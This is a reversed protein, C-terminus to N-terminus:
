GRSPEVRLAPPSARRLVRTELDAGTIIPIPVATGPASRFSSALQAGTMFVWRRAGVRPIPSSTMSALVLPGQGGLWDPALFVGITHLALRKADTDLPSIMWPFGDQVWDALSCQQDFLLERVEGGLETGDMYFDVLGGFLLVEFFEGAEGEIDTQRSHPAGSMLPPTNCDGHGLFTQLLHGIEHLYAHCLRFLSLQYLASNFNRGRAVYARQREVALTVWQPWHNTNTVWFLTISLSVTSNLKVAQSRTDFEEPSGRWSGRPHDSVIRASEFRDDDVLLPSTNLKQLFTNTLRVVDADPILTGRARLSARVFAQVSAVGRECNCADVAKNWSAAQLYYRSDSAPLQELRNGMRRVIAFNRTAM